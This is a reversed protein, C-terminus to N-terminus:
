FKKACNQNKLDIEKVIKFSHDYISNFDQFVHSIKKFITLIVKM